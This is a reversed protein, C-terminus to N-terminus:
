IGLIEQECGEMENEKDDDSELVVIDSNDTLENINKEMKVGFPKESKVVSSAPLLKRKKFHQREKVASPNNQHLIIKENVNEM